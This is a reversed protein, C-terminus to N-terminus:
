PGTSPQQSSRPTQTPSHSHALPPPTRICHLSDDDEADGKATFVMFAENFTDDVITHDAQLLSSVEGLLKSALPAVQAYARYPIGDPGPSSQKPSTMLGEIMRGSVEWDEQHCDDPAHSLLELVAEEVSEQQAFVQAWHQSLHAAAQEAPDISSTTSALAARPGCAQEPLISTIGAKRGSRRWLASM